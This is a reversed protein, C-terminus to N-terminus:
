ECQRRPGGDYPQYTNDEPRYSRYRDFCSQIHDRTMAGGWGPGADVTEIVAGFGDGELTFGTEARAEITYGDSAADLEALYPSECLQRGGGYPQYTGDEARYSRFRRSCWRDHAIQLRQAQEADAASPQDAPAEAAVAGTVVGDIAGALEDAAPAEVAAAAQVNPAAAVRELGSNDAVQVPERSWMAATDAAPGESRPEAVIYITAMVAGAVFVALTLAFGGILALVYKM